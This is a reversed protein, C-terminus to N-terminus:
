FEGAKWTKTETPAPQQESVQEQGAVYGDEIIISCEDGTSVRTAIAQLGEQELWAGFEQLTELDMQELKDLLIFGCDPKLRRVISASVILQDAGSMNDWKQGNYILEGDAVSLGALPLPATTLLDTKQQRITNIEATLAEYQVRYDNADTEAKDKDLNARVKRNIEDIQRINAELEETSEDLLDLTDKQAIELDAALQGYKIEAEKLMAKLREVEQAQSAFAAQIQTLRQRKRQNEGNRALIEQQQRILESASIPEKPADPF